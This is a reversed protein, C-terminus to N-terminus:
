PKHYLFKEIAKNYAEVFDVYSIKKDDFIMKMVYQKISDPHYGIFPINPNRSGIVKLMLFIDDSYKTIKRNKQASEFARQGEEHLRLAKELSEEETVSQMACVEFATGMLIIMSTFGIFLFNNKKM